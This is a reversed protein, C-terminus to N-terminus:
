IYHYKQRKSILFFATVFFSLIEAIVASIWIGNVGMFLPLIIVASTKFVLTRLFSIVASIVGNSLATFFASGFINIGTLIFCFAYIRLGRCTFEFLATDYGVFIKSMPSALLVSLSFLLFGGLLMLKMSKSFINKMEDHTRAGYNYGVIPAIGISYGFFIAIFIFNVYMMVGYAAVGDEGAFKMLQFNYIMTVLSVSINSMLESSGNICTKLLVRGNYRFKTLCLIGAKRKTFYIIPTVGGVIECMATAAAAGAVGWQFLVIFLFDLLINTTGAAVTIALGLRPREATILFSQFVNQLMFAPLSIMSIQGYIVCDDLMSDAAGLLVAIPKMLIFGLLALAAGGIITVCVMMSFYENAKERDGEGLAKAVIANGGTGIVFGLAGLISIFPLIINVAAFATKGVFNSVFIGDVVGYVSTFIMMIISPLVFTFIRKYTFHDSLKINM